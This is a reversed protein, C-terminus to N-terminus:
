TGVLVKLTNKSWGTGPADHYQASFGEALVLPTMTSFHYISCKKRFVRYLINNEHIIQTKYLKNNVFSTLYKFADILLEYPIGHAELHGNLLGTVEGRRPAKLQLLLM